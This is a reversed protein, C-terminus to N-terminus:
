WFDSDADPRSVRAYSCTDAKLRTFRNTEKLAQVSNSQRYRSSTVFVTLYGLEIGLDLEHCCYM